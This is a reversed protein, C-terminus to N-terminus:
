NRFLSYIINAAQALLGLATWGLFILAVIKFWLPLKRRHGGTTHTAFSFGDTRAGQDLTAAPPAVMETVPPKPDLMAKLSIPEGPRM